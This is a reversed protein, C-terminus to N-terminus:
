KKKKELRKIRHDHLILANQQKEVVNALKGLVDITKNILKETAKENM